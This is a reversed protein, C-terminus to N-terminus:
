EQIRVRSIGEVLLEYVLNVDEDLLRVCGMSKQQGISSPDITGHLGYGTTNADAGLGEIGIWREGIPNEPDDKDYKQGTRPNVWHPNILKSNRKVVFSGTPTPSEIPEGLGVRFSRIYLWSAEDEPPGAYVDLRYDSKDVVAHFPGRVLKLKQGLQIKNPDAIGNVRQILRWDTALGLKEPLKSLRDGPAIAYTEAMPDGKVVKSSFLLDQNLQTLRARLQSRGTEDLGRERLADSMLMRAAVPDNAALRQDAAALVRAFEGTEKPPAHPQEAPAAGLSEGLTTPATLDPPPAAEATRAPAGQGGQSILVPEAQEPESREPTAKGPKPDSGSRQGLLSATRPTGQAPGGSREFPDDLLHDAASASEPALTSRGGQGAGRTLMWAAATGVVVIIGAVALRPMRFGRRRHTRVVARGAAAVRPSQSPLAM